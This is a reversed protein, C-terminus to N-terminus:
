RIGAVLIDAILSRFSDISYGYLKTESSMEVCTIGQCYKTWVLLVEDADFIGPVNKSFTINGVVIVNKTSYDMANGDRPLVIKQRVLLVVVVELDPDCSDRGADRDSYCDAQRRTRHSHRDYTRQGERELRRRAQRNHSRKVM